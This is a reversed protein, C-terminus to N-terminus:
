LETITQQISAVELPVFLPFIQSAKPAALHFYGHLFPWSTFAECFSDSSSSPFFDIQLISQNPLSYIHSELSSRDVRMESIFFAHQMEISNYLVINGFEISEICCCFVGVFWRVIADFNLDSLQFNWWRSVAFHSSLSNWLSFSLFLYVSLHCEWCVRTFQTMKKVKFFRFYTWIVSFSIIWVM